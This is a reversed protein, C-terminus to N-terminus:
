TSTVIDFADLIERQAKTMLSLKNKYRGSYHITTLSELEWLLSRVSYNSKPMKSKITQRIASLLILAIFQVFLRGQMRSSLHVRLRKCDLENKLDDFCKEIVDKERYVDLATLPDKLKTTLIASFGVYQKRAARIDEHKFEIKLGRKPTTKWSFFREYYEEHEALRRGELLENRYIALDQDFQIRDRAMQEPDFYLHLYLRRRCEGWSLRRTHAYVVQGQHEHYGATGDILDRDADIIERVWKLHAPVGLTFNYRSETLDDINKKSYFGRDMVFHLKPYNLKALQDLLSELTSVDNISGSLPRYLVPLKSQQGYILGLNIQPLREGDRNYGYRVYENQESYSSISSIDYCLYDRSAISKGWLDFFTQRDDETISELLESIRQSSLNKDSPVEHNECWSAAHCLAGKSALLYWALSLLERWSCPAVKKLHKSLGIKRDVEKLLIAPGSVTTHATVAQDLAAGAQDGLSKKPILENTKPDLRGLYVQQTRAQKKEKDWYHDLVEYVYIVGNKREQYILKRDTDIMAISYSHDSLFALGM